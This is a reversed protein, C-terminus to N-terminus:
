NPGHERMFSPASPSSSSSSSTSTPMRLSLGFFSADNRQINEYGPVRRGDSMDYAKLQTERELGVTAGEISLRGLPAPQERPVPRDTSRATDNRSRGADNAAPAPRRASAPPAPAREAARAPPRPKAAPKASPPPQPASTQRMAPARAPAASERPATNQGTTPSASQTTPSAPQSTFKRSNSNQLGTPDFMLRNSTVASQQAVTTVSTALLLGVAIL